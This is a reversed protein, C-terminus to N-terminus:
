SDRSSSDVIGEERKPECQSNVSPRFVEVNCAYTVQAALVTVDKSASTRPDIPRAGLPCSSRTGSALPLPPGHRAHRRTLRCQVSVSHTCTLRRFPLTRDTYIRAPHHVSAARCSRAVSLRRRQWSGIQEGNRRRDRARRHTQQDSTATDCAPRVTLDLAPQCYLLGGTKRRVPNRTLVESTYERSGRRRRTPHRHHRSIGLCSFLCVPIRYAHRSGCSVRRHCVTLRPQTPLSSAREEERRNSLTRAPEHVRRVFRASGFRVTLRLPSVLLSSVRARSLQGRSPPRSGGRGLGTVVVAHAVRLEAPCFTSPRDTPRHTLSLTDTHRHIDRARAFGSLRPPFIRPTHKSNEKGWSFAGLTNPAARM